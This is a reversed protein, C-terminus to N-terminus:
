KNKIRSIIIHAGNQKQDCKIQYRASSSIFIGSVVRGGRSRGHYIIVLRSLTQPYSLQPNSELISPNTCSHLLEMASASSNSCDQVLGDMYLHHFYMCQIAMQMHTQSFLSHYRHTSVISFYRWMLTKDCTTHLVNQVRQYRSVCKLFVDLANMHKLAKLFM